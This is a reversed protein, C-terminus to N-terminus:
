WSSKLTPGQCFFLTQDCVKAPYHKPAITIGYASVELDGISRLLNQDPVARHKITQKSGAYIRGSEPVFIQISITPESKM